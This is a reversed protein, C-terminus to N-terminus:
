VKSCQAEIHWLLETCKVLGYMTGKLATLRNCSGTASLSDSQPVGKEGRKEEKDGRGEEKEGREELRDM